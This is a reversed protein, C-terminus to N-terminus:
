FAVTVGRKNRMVYPSSMSALEGPFFADQQYAQGFVYPIDSPNVNRKLSGKSPLVEINDFEDFAGYEVMVSVNGQNPVISSETYVPLAPADKQMMLVKSAQSFDQYTKGDVLKAHATFPKWFNSLTVLSG